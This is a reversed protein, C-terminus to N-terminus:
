LPTSGKPQKEFQVSCQKEIQTIDHMTRIYHIKSNGTKRACVKGNKCWVFQCSKNLLQTKANYLLSKQFKTLAERIYVRDDAKEKVVDPVLQGVTLSKEKGADIWQQQFIKSKLEVLIPGPKEKTGPLRQSSQINNEEMNLKSAVTEVLNRVENLPIDPLGAIELTTTLSKQEFDKIGQELVTVRLELNKNKNTLDHNKNELDKIKSDQRKVSQEMTTLQDSLYELSNELTGIEERFTKKVERSIDQVLKKTDIVQANEAYEEADEDDGDDDPIVFSSRRSINKLCDECSWEIGSSNRLTNLQKNSLKSCTPDAHVIKDCRSCEIGPAKKTINKKCKVCKKLVM